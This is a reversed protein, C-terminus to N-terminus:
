REVKKGKAGELLQNSLKSDLRNKKLTHLVCLQRLKREAEEVSGHYAVITHQKPGAVTATTHTTHM